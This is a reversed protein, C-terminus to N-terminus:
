HLVGTLLVALLGGLISLNALTLAIHLSQKSSVAALKVELRNINDKLSEITKETDKCWSNLDQEFTM